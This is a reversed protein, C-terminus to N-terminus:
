ELKGAAVADAAVAQQAARGPVALSSMAFYARTRARWKAQWWRLQGGLFGQWRPRVISFKVGHEPVLRYELEAADPTWDTAGCGPGQVECLEELAVGVGHERGTEYQECASGAAEPMPGQRGVVGSGSDCVVVDEVKWVIKYPQGQEALIRQLRDAASDLVLTEEM